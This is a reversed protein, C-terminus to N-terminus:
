QKGKSSRVSHIIEQLRRVGARIEAVSTGGFGLVLGQRSPRGSYCWSLPMTWLEAETAARAVARDDLGRPFEVVLTMGAQEGVIGFEPGLVAKL